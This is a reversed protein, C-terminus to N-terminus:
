ESHTQKVAWKKLAGFVHLFLVLSLRLGAQLRPSLYAPVCLYVLVTTLCHTRVLLTFRRIPVHFLTMFLFQSDWTKARQLPGGLKYRATNVTARQWSEGAGTECRKQPQLQVTQLARITKPVFAGGRAVIEGGATILEDGVWWTIYAM